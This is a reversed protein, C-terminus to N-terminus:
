RERQGSCTRRGARGAPPRRETPRRAPWRALRGSTAAPAPRHPGRRARRGRGPAGLDRRLELPRRRRRAAPPRRQGAAARRDGRGLRPGRPHAARAPLGPGGRVRGRGPRRDRGAPPSRRPPATRASPTSPRPRGPGGGRGRGLAVGAGRASPSCTSTVRASRGRGHEVLGGRGVPSPLGLKGPNLIGRPTSPPRPPVLVDFGRGAGRPVFRARNLGSATTTASRAATRGPRGTHRRGVAGPLLRRQGDPEAVQGAFTFYLCGGTPYSHSQHAGAALTGEVGGLAEVTAAYIAPLDAWAGSVEMTDVVFGRSILAELASVDNRHELWHDVHAVDGPRAPSPGAACEEAVLAMTAAVLAPDGEDLVLLLADDGTHYTRDAETADYLRLVAPTAGRQLVRRLRRHRRRVLRAALRRAARRGPGPAPAAPRRHHRRAHGRQRRVAPQPRPRGRRPALRRDHDVHRRGPRRRPRAGHGRDERLPELAPRGLPLGALRRRDVARDVPALPRAHRRARRPAADELVTASRAPGCTSCWRRRRRRRRHGDLGTMDLVVGGHVPVSGGCVGSRGAAATVPVRAEHCLALVAAVEAGATAPRGGVASGAGGPGGTAWAMAGPWWDRSAEALAAADDTASRPAPRACASSAPRRPGRGRRGRAPRHRGGGRRGLAIPPTPAGPGLPPLPQPATMPRGYLLRGPRASEPLGAASREHGLTARLRPPRPRRATPRGLGARRRGPGAVDAAAAASAEAGLLPGPAAPSCTTSTPPWRTAPPTSPRPGCTPSARCWRSAWRRTPRSMAVCWGPRAATATPWARRRGRGRRRLGDAGRLRLKGTRSRRVHRSGGVMPDGTEALVSSRRRRRRRGGDGPLDHAQRRHRHGRREPPHVHHRRSLDATRGSTPRRSWRACAPGRASSTPPSSRDHAALANM